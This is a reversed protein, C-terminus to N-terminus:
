IFGTKIAPIIREQCGIPFMIYGKYDPNLIFNKGALGLAGINLMGSCSWPCKIVVQEYARQQGASGAHWQKDSNDPLKDFNDLHFAPFNQM